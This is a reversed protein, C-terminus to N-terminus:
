IKVVVVGERALRAQSERRNEESKDAQHQVVEEGTAVRHSKARLLRAAVSSGAEVPAGGDEVSVLWVFEPLGAQIEHIEEWYRKFDRM